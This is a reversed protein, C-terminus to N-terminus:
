ALRRYVLFDTNRAINDYLRRAATNSSQTHWYIDNVNCEKCEDSVGEILMRGIGKGRAAKATFLDQLYCTNELQITNRHFIFHTFGLLLSNQEAVLGFVMETEDFLREWTSQVMHDPLATEGSRGYFANYQAWLEIWDNRDREELRRILVRSLEVM